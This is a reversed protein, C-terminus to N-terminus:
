EPLLGGANSIQKEMVWVDGTKSGDIMWLKDKFVLAVFLNRLSWPSHETQQVWNQLQM